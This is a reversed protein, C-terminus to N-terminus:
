DGEVGTFIWVYDPYTPDRMSYTGIVNEFKGPVFKQLRKGDWCMKEGVECYLGSRIPLREHTRGDQRQIKM